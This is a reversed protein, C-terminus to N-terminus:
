EGALTKIRDVIETIHASLPLNASGTVHVNCRNSPIVIKDAKSECVASAMAPSVEGYMSNELLIGIPGIILDGAACQRCNYVVANEGTACVSAGAKIMASSAASNTGVAIITLNPAAQRIQSIIAKGLGGGQADIVVIKM